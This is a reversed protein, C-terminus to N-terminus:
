SFFERVKNLLKDWWSVKVVIDNDIQHIARDTKITDLVEDVNVLAKNLGDGSYYSAGRYYQKGKIRMTAPMPFSAWEKALNIMMQKESLDGNLFKQWGRRNLLTVAMRDQMKEDFLENGTLGMEEKLGKLTKRIIQYRGAASSPMGLVTTYRKQWAIVQDITSVTLNQTKNVGYVANYNNGSEVRGILNLIQYM